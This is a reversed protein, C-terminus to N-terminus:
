DGMALLAMSVNYTDNGAKTEKTSFLPNLLNQMKLNIGVHMGCSGQHIEQIISKAQVPGVCRLWPSLYSRRYLKDYIIKYLPAKIRINRAKQPDNPLTGLQVYERIPLMWNNGEEKVIDTVERQVISKEQVVEVLVEKALKSFTMSALKSIADAKKNQDRRIHEMSYSPFGQLIEKTKGLYQKIVPHRAEFLGKVQNAVLQSDVFIALELMLGAGSNNSSSAGDTFLKWANDQKSEKRKAEEDEMEKDRTSPTEALFDVLIQGKVSKREKFKIKYEGMEISWKAVHRSKEPRM